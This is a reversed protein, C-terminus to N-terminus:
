VTRRTLPPPLSAGGGHVLGGAFPSGRVIGDIREVAHTTEGDDQVVPRDLAGSTPAISRASV